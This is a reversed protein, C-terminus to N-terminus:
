AHASWRTKAMCPPGSSWRPSLPTWPKRCRPPQGSTSSDQKREEEGAPRRGHGARVCGGTEALRTNRWVQWAGFLVSLAAGISLTQGVRTSLRERRSGTTETAASKESTAAVNRHAGGAVAAGRRSARRLVGATLHLGLTQGTRLLEGVASRRLVPGCHDAASFASGQGFLGRYGGTSGGRAAAERDAAHRGVGRRQRTRVPDKRSDTVGARSRSHHHRAHRFTWTAACSRIQPSPSPIWSSSRPQTITSTPWPKLM